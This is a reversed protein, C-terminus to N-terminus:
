PFAGDVDDIEIAQDADLRGNIVCYIKAPLPGNDIDGPIPGDDPDVSKTAGLCTEGTLDKPPPDEQAMTGGAPLGGVMVVLALVLLVAGGLGIFARVRRGTLRM